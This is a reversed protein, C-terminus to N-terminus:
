AYDVKSKDPDYNDSRLGIETAFQALLHLSACWFHSWACLYLFIGLARWATARTDELPYGLGRPQIEYGLETGLVIVAGAIGLLIFQLLLYQVTTRNNNLLILANARFAARVRGGGETAYRAIGTLHLLSFLIFLAVM